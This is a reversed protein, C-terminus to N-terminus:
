AAEATALRGGATFALDRVAARDARLVLLQRGTPTEWLRATGDTSSTAALHGDPSFRFALVEGSHDKFRSVVRGSRVNRLRGDRPGDRRPDLRRRVPQPGHSDHAPRSPRTGAHGVSRGRRRRGRGDDRRPQVGVRQGRRQRDSQVSSRPPPREPCGLRGGLRRRRGGRSPAGRSQLHCRSVALGRTFSSSAREGLALRAGRRVPPPCGRETPVSRSRQRMPESRACSGRPRSRATSRRSPRRCRTGAAAPRRWRWCGLLM